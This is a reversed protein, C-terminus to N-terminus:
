LIAERKQLQRQYKQLREKSARRCPVGVDASFGRHLAVVAGLLLMVHQLLGLLHHQQLAARRKVAAAGWGKPNSFRFVGTQEILDPNKRGM